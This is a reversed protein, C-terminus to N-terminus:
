ISDLAMAICKQRGKTIIKTRIKYRDLNLHKEATKEAM